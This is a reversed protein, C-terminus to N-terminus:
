YETFEDVEIGESNAITSNLEKVSSDINSIADLMSATSNIILRNTGSYVEKSESIANLIKSDDFTVINTNSDQKPIASVVREPVSLINGNVESIASQLLSIDAPPPIQIAGISTKIDNSAVAIENSVGSLDIEINKDLIASEAVDIANIIDVKSSEIANLVPENNIQITNISEEVGSISISISQIADTNGISYAELKDIGGQIITLSDNVVGIDGSIRDLSSYMSSIIASIAELKQEISQTYRSLANDVVSQIQEITIEDAM